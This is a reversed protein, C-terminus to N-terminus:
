LDAEVIGEGDCNECEVDYGDYGDGQCMECKRGLAPCLQCVYPVDKLCDPAFEKMYLGNEIWVHRGEECHSM